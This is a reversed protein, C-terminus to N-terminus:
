KWQEKYDKKKWQFYRLFFRQRPDKKLTCAHFLFPLFYEDWKESLKMEINAKYWTGEKYIDKTAWGTGVNVNLISRWENNFFFFYFKFALLFNEHQLCITLAFMQKWKGILSTWSPADNRRIMFKRENEGLVTKIGWLTHLIKWYFIIEKKKTGVHHSFENYHVRNVESYIVFISILNKKM